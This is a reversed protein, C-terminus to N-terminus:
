EIKVIANADMPKKNMLQFFGTLLSLSFTDTTCRMGVVAM